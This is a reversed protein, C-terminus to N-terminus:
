SLDRVTRAAYSGPLFPRRVLPDGVSETTHQEIKHQSHFARQLTARISFEAM